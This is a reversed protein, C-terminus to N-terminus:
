RRSVLSVQSRFFPLAARQVKLLFASSFAGLPPESPEYYFSLEAIDRNFESVIIWGPADTSLGIRRLELAPIELATHGGTPPQSTIPLLYLYTHGGIPVAIALCVPRQKRGESEGREQERRWLYPYRIVTGPSPSNAMVRNSNPSPGSWLRSSM